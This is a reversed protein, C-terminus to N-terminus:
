VRGLRDARLSVVEMPERVQTYDAITLVMDVTEGDSSLPLRLVCYDRAQDAHNILRWRIFQCERSQVVALLHGALADRFAAPELEDVYRGTLELAHMDVTMTGALRYRFRPGPYVVELLIVHPLLTAVEAPNFDARSPAWRSGRIRNWYDLTLNFLPSYDGVRDLPVQQWNVQRSNPASRWQPSPELSTM